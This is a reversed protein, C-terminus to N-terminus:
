GTRTVGKILSLLVAASEAQSRGLDRRLLKWLYVDCICVLADLLRRREPPPVRQLCAHFQRETWRRHEKRGQVLFDPDANDALMRIITDGIIEYHDVLDAVFTDVDGPEAHTRETEAQRKLEEFAIDILRERTEFLNMLTQVSVKAKSAVESLRIESRFHTRFMAATTAIIRQRTAAAHIARAQM